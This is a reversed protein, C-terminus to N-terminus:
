EQQVQEEPVWFLHILHTLQFFDLGFCAVSLVLFDRIRMNFAKCRGELLTTSYMTHSRMIPRPWTLFGESDRLQNSLTHIPSTIGIGAIKAYSVTSFTWCASSQSILKSNCWSVDRFLMNSSLRGNDIQIM